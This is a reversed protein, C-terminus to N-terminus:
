KKINYVASEIMSKLYDDIDTKNSKLWKMVDEPLRTKIKELALSLAHEQAEKDFMGDKKLGDVYTQQVDGVVVKVVESLTLLLNKLKNNKVYKNILYTALGGLATIITGIVAIIIETGIANWDM